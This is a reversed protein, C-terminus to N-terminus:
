AAGLRAMAAQWADFQRKSEQLDGCASLKGRVLNNTQQAERLLELANLDSGVAGALSNLRAAYPGAKSLLGTM